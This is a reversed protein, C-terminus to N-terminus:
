KAHGWVFYLGKQDSYNINKVDVYVIINKEKDINKDRRAKRKIKNIQRKSLKAVENLDASKKFVAEGVAVFSKTFGPTLERFEVTQAKVHLAPFFFLLLLFCNLINKFSM